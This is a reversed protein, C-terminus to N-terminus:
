ENKNSIHRADRRRTSKKKRKRATQRLRDAPHLDDLIGIEDGPNEGLTSSRHRVARVSGSQRRWEGIRFYAVPFQESNWSDLFFFVVVWFSVFINSM